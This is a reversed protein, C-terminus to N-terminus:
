TAWEKQLVHQIKKTHSVIGKEFIYSAPVSYWLHAPMALIHHIWTGCCQAKSFKLDVELLNTNSFPPKILMGWLVGSDSQDWQDFQHLWSIEPLMLRLWAVQKRLHFRSHFTQLREQSDLGLTSVPLLSVVFDLHELSTAAKRKLHPLTSANQLNVIGRSLEQYARTVVPPAVVIVGNQM